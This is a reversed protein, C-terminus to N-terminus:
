KFQWLRTLNRVSFICDIFEVKLTTATQLARKWEKQKVERSQGSEQVPTYSYRGVPAELNRSTGNGVSGGDWFISV